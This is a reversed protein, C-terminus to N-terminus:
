IPGVPRLSPRVGRQLGGPHPHSEEGGGVVAREPALPLDPGGEVMQTERRGVHNLHAGRSPQSRARRFRAARPWHGHHWPARSPHAVHRRIYAPRRHSPRHGSGDLRPSRQPAAGTGSRGWAADSAAAWRGRRLGSGRSAVVWMAGTPVQTPVPPGHASRPVVNPLTPSAGVSPCPGLVAPPSAPSPAGAARAIPVTRRCRRHKNSAGSLWPCRLRLVCARPTSRPVFPRGPVVGHGQEFGTPVM